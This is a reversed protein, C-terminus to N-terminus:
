IYLNKVSAVEGCRIASGMEKLVDPSVSPKKDIHPIWLYRNLDTFIDKLEVVTISHKQKTILQNVQYCKQSFDESDEPSTICIMHGYNKDGINIEIGPFVVCDCERQLTEKIQEYQSLNFENHNTIAIGSIGLEAVYQKLKVLSFKFNVDFDTKVTHIHLDLKKM